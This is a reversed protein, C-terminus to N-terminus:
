WPEGKGDVADDPQHALCDSRDPDTGTLHSTLTRASQLAGALASAQRAAVRLSWVADEVAPDPNIGHDHGVRGDAHAQALWTSAQDLAQPLRQALVELCGIVADVQSPWAYGRGSVTAHNLARINEAAADAAEVAATM